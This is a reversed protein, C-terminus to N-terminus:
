YSQHLVGSRWGSKARGGWRSPTTLFLGREQAVYIGWNFGGPFVNVTVESPAQASVPHTLALAALVVLGTCRMLESHQTKV